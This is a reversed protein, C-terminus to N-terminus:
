PRRGATAGDSARPVRDLLQAALARFLHEPDFHRFAWAAADLDPSASPGAYGEDLAKLADVLRPVDGFPVHTTHELLLSYVATRGYALAEIVTGGISDHEVMRVVCSAAAYWPSMDAQWGLFRVNEPAEGAAWEGTGGAILFPVRPLARASELLQRGGYLEFRLDPVYSLVTFRPPMPPPEPSAPMGLWPFDVVVSQLGLQELDKAVPSSGAFHSSRAAALRFRRTRRGSEADQLARKVDTGIWYYIVRKRPGLRQVLAFALDFLYGRVTRAGPRFGVVLILESRALTLWAPLSAADRVGDFPALGVDLDAYEKLGTALERCWHAQGTIIISQSLGRV